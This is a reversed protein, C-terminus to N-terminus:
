RSPSGTQYWFEIAGTSAAERYYFNLLGGLREGPRSVIERTRKRGDAEKLSQKKAIKKM